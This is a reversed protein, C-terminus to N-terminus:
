LLAKWAGSHMHTSTIHNGQLTSVKAPRHSSM